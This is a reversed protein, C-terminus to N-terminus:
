YEMYTYTTPDPYNTETTYAELTGTPVFIICDTPIDSLAQSDIITPPTTPAFKIFGLGYCGSFAGSYIDTVGSPITISSLSFCDIFAVDGISTVSDPLTVSSLSHCGYFASYSISTIRSPITVSSLSTCYGFADNGISTFGIPITISSLSYCGSFADDGISTIRSPLTVSSLSYCGSFAMDGILINNGIEVKQISNQYVSNVETQTMDHKWLLQSGYEDGFISATGTVTLVIVYDGSSTYTHQTNVVTSTSTGTLTGHATGDGWDIDVSGNVALGLYPSLRGEELRIYVRTKGDDTIYMQGVWVVADPYDAIYSKINALSCNWGQATLGSHSPNSPLSTKGAVESTQWTAVVTGDYDIFNVGKSLAPVPTSGGGSVNVDALAYQAIDIDTGNETITIKGTPMDGSYDVLYDGDQMGSPVTSSAYLDAEEGGGGTPLADIAAKFGLTEDYLIPSSTGGKSRIANATNTLASDNTLYEM